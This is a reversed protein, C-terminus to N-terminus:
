NTYVYNYNTTGTNKFKKVIEYTVFIFLLVSIAILILFLYTTHHEAASNNITSLSLTPPYDPCTAGTTNVNCFTIKQENGNSM